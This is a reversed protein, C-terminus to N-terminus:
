KKWIIHSQWKQSTQPFDSRFHAGRSEKRILASETMLRGALILNSLENSPLDTPVPLSSQWAALTAAAQELGEKDRVIGAKDWLLQQL